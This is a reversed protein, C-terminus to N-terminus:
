PLVEFGFSAVVHLTGDCEFVDGVMSSRRGLKRGDKAIHHDPLAPTVGAFPTLSWSENVNNTVRWAHELDTTECTAVLEYRGANWLDRALLARDSRPATVLDLLGDIPEKRHHVRIM